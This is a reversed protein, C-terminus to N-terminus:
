SRLWKVAEDTKKFDRHKGKKKAESAEREGKQWEDTWFYAQSKDIVLVPKIVLVGDKEEIDLTDGIEVKLKKRVDEPIVVQYKNKVKVLSM